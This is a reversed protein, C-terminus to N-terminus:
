VPVHLGPLLSGSQAKIEVDPHMLMLCNRLQSIIVTFTSCLIPFPINHATLNYEDCEEEKKREPYLVKGCLWGHQHSFHPIHFENNSFIYIYYLYLLKNIERTRHVECFCIYKIHGALQLMTMSVLIFQTQHVCHLVSNNINKEFRSFSPSLLTWQLVIVFLVISLLPYSLSTVSVFVLKYYKSSSSTAFSFAKNRCLPGTEAHGCLSVSFWIM